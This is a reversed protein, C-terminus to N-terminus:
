IRECCCRRVLEADFGEDDGVIPRGGAALEHQVGLRQRVVRVVTVGQAVDDVIGLCQGSTRDLPGVDILSVTAMVRLVWAADEDGALLATDESHDFALQSASGGDLGHDAMQLGFAVEAAAIELAASAIGGVDDEGGDAM